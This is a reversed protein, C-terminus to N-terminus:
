SRGLMSLVWVKYRELHKWLMDVDSHTYIEGNYSVTNKEQIMRWLHSLAKEGREDLMIVEKVLDISAMHDDGQSKVGGVKITLADTYAIAAHIILVGAANWYDFAKAAEAGSYFNDAVKRYDHHKSPSVTARKNMRPTM